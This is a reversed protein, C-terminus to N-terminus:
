PVEKAVWAETHPGYDKAHALFLARVTAADQENAVVWDKPGMSGQRVTFHGASPPQDIWGHIVEVADNIFPSPGLVIGVEAHRHDMLRIVTGRPLPWVDTIM